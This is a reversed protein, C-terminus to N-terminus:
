EGAPVVPPVVWWAGGGLMRIEGARVTDTDFEQGGTQPNISFLPAFQPTVVIRLRHGPPFRNATVMRDM